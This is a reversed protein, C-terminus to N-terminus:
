GMITLYRTLTLNNMSRWMGRGVNSSNQDRASRGRWLERVVYAVEEKDVKLRFFDVEAYISLMTDVKFGNRVLWCFSVNLRVLM